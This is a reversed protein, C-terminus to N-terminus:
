VMEDPVPVPTAMRRAPAPDYHVILGERDEPAAQTNRDSLTKWYAFATDPALAAEPAGAPLWHGMVRARVHAVQAPRTVDVATETDWRLSRGNLNASSIFARADDFISVKSHVYIIPASRLRHRGEGGAPRPQVPSVVLMRDTGFGRRLISLCRTQLREGKRADLGDNDEFAVDEPAAPLVLILKLQPCARARRALVRALPLHRFFQTELYILRTAQEAAQRHAAEIETVVPVPSLRFPARGPRRSLTRLFGPAPPPPPRHGAVTGLFSKLHDAAAAVVPGEVMAQVDHWTDRAPRDHDPSDLRRPNLDLGGIYLRRDDFVAMKQHHTAPYLQPLHWRCAHGAPTTRTANRLGPAETLFCQRTEASMGNLRAVFGRLKGLAVPGLVLRAGQGAQAAHRATVIQLRGGSVEQAALFRRRSAWSQRHLDPAGIPDFDSLVMRVEVGRRLTHVVLDFWDHGVTRAEDSLLPTSLDFIRFGASISERAELFASELVPVAEAATLLVTISAVAESPDNQM